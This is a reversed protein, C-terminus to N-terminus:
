AAKRQRAAVRQFAAALQRLVLSPVRDAARAVIAAAAPADIDM